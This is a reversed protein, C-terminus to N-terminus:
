IKNVCALMAYVEAKFVTAHKGLSISILRGLTQGYVRAGTGEMM